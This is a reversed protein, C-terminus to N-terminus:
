SGDDGHTELTCSAMVSPRSIATDGRERCLSSMHGMQRSINFFVIVVLSHRCRKQASQIMVAKLDPHTEGCFAVKTFLSYSYIETKLDPHTSVAEVPTNKIMHINRRWPILTTPAQHSRNKFFFVSNWVSWNELCWRQM